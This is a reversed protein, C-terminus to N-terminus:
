SFIVSWAKLFKTGNATLKFYVGKAVAGERRAILGRRTMLTLTPTFVAKDIDTIAMLDAKIYPDKKAQSAITSLVTAFTLAQSVTFPKPKNAM